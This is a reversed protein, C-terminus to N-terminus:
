CDYGDDDEDSRTQPVRHVVQSQIPHHPPLPPAAPFVMLAAKDSRPVPSHTPLPLAAKSVMPVDTLETSHTQDVAVQQQEKPGGREMPPESAPADARKNPKLFLIGGEEDFFAGVRPANKTCTNPPYCQICLLAIVPVQMYDEDWCPIAGVRILTLPGSPPSTNSKQFPLTCFVIRSSESVIAFLKPQLRVSGSPLLLPAIELSVVLRACKTKPNM